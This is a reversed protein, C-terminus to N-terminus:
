IEIVLYFDTSNDAPMDITSNVKNDGNVPAGCGGVILTYRQYLVPFQRLAKNDPLPHVPGGHHGGLQTAAGGDPKLPVQEEHGAGHQQLQQLMPAPLWGGM